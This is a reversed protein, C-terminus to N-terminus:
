KTNRLESLARSLDMSARKIAGREKPLHTLDRLQEAKRVIEAKEVALLFRRAEIVADQILETKM